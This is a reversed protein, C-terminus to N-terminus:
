RIVWYQVKERGQEGLDIHGGTGEGGGRLMASPMVATVTGGHNLVSGSILGMIGQSGGGYVLPRGLTALARGLAALFLRKKNERLM